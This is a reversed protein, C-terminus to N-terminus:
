KTGIQCGTANLTYHYFISPARNKVVLFNSSPARSKKDTTFFQPLLEAFGKKGLLWVKEQARVCARWQLNPKPLPPAAAGLNRKPAAKGLNQKLLAAAWFNKM